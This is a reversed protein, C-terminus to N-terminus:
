SDVYYLVSVQISSLVTPRTRRVVPNDRLQVRPGNTSLCRTHSSPLPLPRPRNIVMRIASSSVLCLESVVLRSPCVKSSAGFASSLQANEADWSVIIESLECYKERAQPDEVEEEDTKDGVLEQLQRIREELEMQQALVRQGLNGAQQLQKEKKDLLNQLYFNMDGATTAVFPDAVGPPPMAIGGGHIVDLAGHANSLTDSAM